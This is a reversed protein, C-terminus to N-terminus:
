FEHHTCIKNGKLNFLSAPFKLCCDGPRVKRVEVSVGGPCDNSFRGVTEEGTERSLIMVMATMHNM